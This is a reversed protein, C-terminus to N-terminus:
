RRTLGDTRSALQIQSLLDQSPQHHPELALAQRAADEAAVLNGAKFQSRALQYYLEPSGPGRHCAVSLADIAEDYRGLARYALGELYLVQQPEEGPTYTDALGQLMNLARQPKDLRRYVEAIALRTDRDEPALGLAHHYDDL